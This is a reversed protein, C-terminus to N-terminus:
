KNNHNYVIKQLSPLESKIFDFAGQYDRYFNLINADFVDIKRENSEVRNQISKLTTDLVQFNTSLSNLSREINKLSESLTNYSTRLFFGIVLLLITMISGGISFIVTEM